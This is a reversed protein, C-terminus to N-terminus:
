NTTLEIALQRVQQAKTSRKRQGDIGWLWIEKTTPDFAWSDGSDTVVRYADRVQGPCVSAQQHTFVTTLKHGQLVGM